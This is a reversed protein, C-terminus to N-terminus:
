KVWKQIFVRGNLEWKFFYFGSSLVSCDYDFSIKGPSTAKMEGTSLVKGTINMVSYRIDQNVPNFCTFTIQSSAPNPYASFQYIKQMEEDSIDTSVGDEAYMLAIGSTGELNKKGFIYFDKGALNFDFVNAIEGQNNVVSVAYWLGTGFERRTLRLEYSTPTPYNYLMWLRDDSDIRLKLPNGQLNNGSFDVVTSTLWNGNGDTESLNAKAVDLAYFGIYPVGTSSVQLSISVPDYEQVDTVTQRVWAGTAPKTAYMVSRDTENLYAIHIRGDTDVQIDPIRGTKAATSDVLTLTWNSSGWPSTALMLADNAKNQFAVYLTNNQIVLAPEQAPYAAGAIVESVWNSGSKKAGMLQNTGKEVYVIYPSTNNNLAIKPQIAAVGPTNVQAYTWTGGSTRNGYFVNADTKESYAIHLIDGNTNSVSQASIDNGSIETRTVNEWVWPINPNTVSSLKKTAMVMRNKLADYLLVFLSDNDKYLNIKANTFFGTAVTDYVFGVGAFLTKGVIIRGNQEEYYSFYIDTSSHPAVAFKSCRVSNQTANMKRYFASYSPTGLAEHKQRSFYFRAQSVQNGIGYLDSFGYMMAVSDTGPFLAVSIDEYSEFGSLLTIPNAPDRDLSDLAAYNWDSLDTGNSRFVMIKRNFFSNAFVHFGGTSAPIITLFEGYRDGQTQCYGPVESDIEPMRGTVWANGSKYTYLIDLDYNIYQCSAPNAANSQFSADFCTIFPNGNPQIAIDVSPQFAERTTTNAGYEGLQITDNIATVVWNGSKNTVYQLYAFGNVNKYYAIHVKNNADLAIASKYGGGNLPDPYSIAWTHAAKSRYAFGLKQGLNDWFSVYINGDDDSVMDPNAGSQQLDSFMDQYDWALTQAGLFSVGAPFLVMTLLLLIRYKM